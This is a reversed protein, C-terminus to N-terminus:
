IQRYFIDGTLGFVTGLGMFGLMLKTRIRLISSGLFCIIGFRCLM